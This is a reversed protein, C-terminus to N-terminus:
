VYESPICNKHFFLPYSLYLVAFSLAVALSSEVFRSSFSSSLNAEIHWTIRHQYGIDAGPEYGARELVQRLRQVAEPSDCEVWFGANTVDGRGTKKVEKCDIKHIVVHPHPRQEHIYIAFESM